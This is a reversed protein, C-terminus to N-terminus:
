APQQPNKWDIESIDVKVRKPMYAPSDIGRVIADDFSELQLVRYEKPAYGFQRRSMSIVLLRQNRDETWEPVALYESDSSWVMSPNCRQRSIIGNSLTLEGATPAGMAVENACLIAATTRGDPSTLEAGGDWPSISM